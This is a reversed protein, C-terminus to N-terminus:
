AEVQELAEDLLEETSELVAVRDELTEDTVRAILDKINYDIGKIRIKSIDAM